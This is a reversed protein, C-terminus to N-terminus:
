AGDDDGNGVPNGIWIPQVNGIEVQQRPERPQFRDVDYGGLRDEFRSEM